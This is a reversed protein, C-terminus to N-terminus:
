RRDCSHGSICSGVQLLDLLSCMCRPGLPWPESSGPVDLAGVWRDILLMVVVTELVVLREVREVCESQGLEWRASHQLLSGRLQFLRGCGSPQCSRPPAHSAPSRWEVAFRPLICAGSALTAEAAAAVANVFVIPLLGFDVFGVLNAAAEQLASEREVLVAAELV